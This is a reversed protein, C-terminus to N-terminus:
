GEVEIGDSRYIIEQNKVLLFKTEFEKEYDKIHVDGELYVATSLADIVAANDGIAIVADIDVEASGSFPNVIHSYRKGDINYLQKLCSSTSISTNKLYIHNGSLAEFEVETKMDKGNPNEGFSISSGGGSVWYRSINKAKLETKLMELCYGKGLGGLDLKADGIKTVENGNFELRTQSILAVEAAIETSLPVKENNLNTLWLDTLGGCFLSFYGHTVETLRVGLKLEDLLWDEVIASGKDNIRGIGKANSIAEKDCAYSTRSTIAILDDIDSQGGEFLHYTFETGYAYSIDKYHTSSCSPLFLFLSSLLIGKKWPRM